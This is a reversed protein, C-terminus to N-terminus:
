DEQNTKEEQEEAAIPFTDKVSRIHLDRQPFAIEIEAERFARDIAMNLEDRVSLMTDFKTHARLEFDLSSEGFGM